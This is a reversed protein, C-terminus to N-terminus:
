ENLLEEFEIYNLHKGVHYIKNDYEEEIRKHQEIWNKRDFQTDNKSDFYQNAEHIDSAYNYHRTGLFINDATRDLYYDFGICYIDEKLNMTCALRVAATGTTFSNEIDDGWWDIKESL